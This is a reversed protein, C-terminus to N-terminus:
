ILINQGLREQFKAMKANFLHDIQTFIIVLEPYLIYAEQVRPLLEKLTVRSRLGTICNTPVSSRNDSYFLFFVFFGGFFGWCCCCVILVTWYDLLFSTFDSTFDMYMVEWKGHMKTKWKIIEIFVNIITYSLVFCIAVSFPCSM